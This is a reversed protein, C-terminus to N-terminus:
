KIIKIEFKYMNQQYDYQLTDIQINKCYYTEKIGNKSTREQEFLAGLLFFMSAFVIAFFLYFFKEETEM